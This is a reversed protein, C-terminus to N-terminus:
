AWGRGIVRIGAHYRVQPRDPDTPNCKLWLRLWHARIRLATLDYYVDADYRDFVRHESRQVLPIGTGTEINIDSEAVDGRDHGLFTWIGILDLPRNMTTDWEVREWIDPRCVTVPWYGDPFRLNQVYVGSEPDYSEQWYIDKTPETM